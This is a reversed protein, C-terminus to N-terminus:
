HHLLNDLTIFWYRVVVFSLGWDSLRSCVEFRAIYYEKYNLLDWIQISTYVLAKGCVNM